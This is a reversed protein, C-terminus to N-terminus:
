VTSIMTTVVVCYGAVCVKQPSLSPAVQDFAHENVDSNKAAPLWRRVKRSRLPNDQLPTGQQQEHKLLDRLAEDADDLDAPSPPWHLM